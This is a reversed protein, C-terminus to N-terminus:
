RSGLTHVFQFDPERAVNICKTNNCRFCTQILVNQFVKRMVKKLKFVSDPCNLPRGIWHGNISEVWDQSPNCSVQVSVTPFEALDLM